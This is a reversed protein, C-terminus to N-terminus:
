VSCSRLIQFELQIVQHCTKGKESDYIRNGVVRVGPCKARKAKNGNDSYADVVAIAQSRKKTKQSGNEKTASVINGSTSSSVAM